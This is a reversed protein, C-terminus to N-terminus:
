FAEAWDLGEGVKGELAPAQEARGQALGVDRDVLILVVLNQTM